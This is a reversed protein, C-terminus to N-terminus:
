NINNGHCSSLQSFFSLNFSLASFTRYLVSLHPFLVPLYPYLVSLPSHRSHFRSFYDLYIFSLSLFFTTGNKVCAHRPRRDDLIAFHDPRHGMHKDLIRRFPIPYKNLIHQPRPISPSSCFSSIPCTIFRHFTMDYLRRLSKLKKPPKQTRLM